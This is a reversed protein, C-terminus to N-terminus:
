RKRRLGASWTIIAGTGLLLLIAPEPVTYVGLSASSGPQESFPIDTQFTLSRPPTGPRAEYPAVSCTSSDLACDMSSHVDFDRSPEASASSLVLPLLLLGIALGRVQFSM